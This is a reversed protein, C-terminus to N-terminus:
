PTIPKTAMQWIQIETMDTPSKCTQVAQQISGSANAFTVLTDSAIQYTFKVFTPNSGVSQCQPGNPYHVQSYLSEGPGVVFPQPQTQGMRSLTINKVAATDYAATIFEGGLVECSIKSINKLTFTGYVNGAGPSLEIMAQLDQPKCFNQSSTPAIASSALTPSPATLTSTPANQQLTHNQFYLFGGFIVIIVILLFINVVKM